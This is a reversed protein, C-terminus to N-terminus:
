DAIVYSGDAHRWAVGSPCVDMFWWVNMGFGEYPSEYGPKSCLRDADEMSEPFAQRFVAVQEEIPTDLFVGNKHLKIRGERLLRELIWFFTQTRTPFDGIEKSIGTWSEHIPDLMAWIADLSSGDCKEIVLLYQQSTLTKM